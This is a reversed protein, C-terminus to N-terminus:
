NAAPTLGCLQIIILSIHISMIYGALWTLGQARECDMAGERKKFAHQICNMWHGASANSQIPRSRQIVAHLLSSGKLRGGQLWSMPRRM